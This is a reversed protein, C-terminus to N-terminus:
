PKITSIDAPAANVSLNPLSIFTIVAIVFAIVLIRTLKLYNLKKGYDLDM